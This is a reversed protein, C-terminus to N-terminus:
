TSEARDKLVPGSKQPKRRLGKLSYFKLSEARKSGAPGVRTARSQLFALRGPASNQGDIIRRHL